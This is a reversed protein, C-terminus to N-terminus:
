LLIGVATFKWGDRKAVITEAKFSKRSTTATVNVAVMMVAM